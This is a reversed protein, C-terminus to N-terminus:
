QSRRNDADDRFARAETMFRRLPEPGLAHYAADLLLYCEPFQQGWPWLDRGLKLAAGPYGNQLMQMAEATLEEIQPRQPDARSGAFPDASLKRYRGRPVIIGLQDWTNAAPERWESGDFEDLYDEGTQRRDAGWFRSLQQRLFAIQAFKEECADDEDADAAYDQCDSEVKELISRTAEFLNDGDIDHEFTDSHWYKVVVPPHEGPSDFFYGYHLGDTTGNFLTVFEPLDGYYRDQWFPREPFDEAPRGAALDFPFAPRMDCVEALIGPPLREMFEQFRFFDDPFEFGYFDRVLHEKRSAM